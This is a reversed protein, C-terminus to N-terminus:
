RDDDFNHLYKPCIFKIAVDNSKSKAREGSNINKM